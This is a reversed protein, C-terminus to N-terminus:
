AEMLCCLGSSTRKLPGASLAFPLAPWGQVECAHNAAQLLLVIEPTPDKTALFRTACDLEWSVIGNRAIVEKLCRSRRGLICSLDAPPLRPSVSDGSPVVQSVCSLRPGVGHLTSTCVSASAAPAAPTAIYLKSSCYGKM